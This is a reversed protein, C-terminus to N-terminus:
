RKKKRGRSAGSFHEWGGPKLEARNGDPTLMTM